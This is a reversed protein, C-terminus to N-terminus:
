ARGIALPPSNPDVIELIQDHAIDITIERAVYRTLVEGTALPDYIAAMQARVFLRHVEIAVELQSTTIQEIDM